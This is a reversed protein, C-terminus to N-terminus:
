NKEVSKVLYDAYENVSNVYSPVKDVLKEFTQHAVEAADGTWIDGNDGFRTYDENKIISILEEVQGSLQKLEGAMDVIESYNM